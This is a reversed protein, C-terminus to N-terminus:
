MCMCIDIYVDRSAGLGVRFGRFGWNRARHVPNWLNELNGFNRENGLERFEGTDSKPFEGFERFERPRVGM